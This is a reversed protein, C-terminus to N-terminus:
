KTDLFYIIPLEKFVAIANSISKICFSEFQACKDIASMKSNYKKDIQLIIRIYSSIGTPCPSHLIPVSKQLRTM